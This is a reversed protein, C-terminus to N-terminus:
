FLLFSLQVLALMRLTRGLVTWFTFVGLRVKAMGAVLTLVEGLVPLWSVVLLPSGWREFATHIRDLRGTRTPNRARWWGEGRFGLYYNVLSGVYGGLTGAVVIGFSSYGQTVMVPVLAEMPFVLISAALLAALFLGFLGLADVLQEGL